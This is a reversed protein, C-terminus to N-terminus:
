SRFHFLNCVVQVSSTREIVKELLMASQSVKQLLDDYVPDHQLAHTLGMDHQSLLRDDFVHCIM